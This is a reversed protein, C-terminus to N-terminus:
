RGIATTSITAAQSRGAHRVAVGDLAHVAYDGDQIHRPLVRELAECSCEHCLAPSLDACLPVSSGRLTIKKLLIGDVRDQGVIACAVLRERGRESLEQRDNWCSM